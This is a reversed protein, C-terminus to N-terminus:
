FYWEDVSFLEWKLIFSETAEVYSFGILQFWFISVISYCRVLLLLYFLNVM